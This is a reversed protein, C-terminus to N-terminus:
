GTKQKPHSSKPVGLKVMGIPTCSLGTSCVMSSEGWHADWYLWSEWIKLLAQAFQLLSSVSVELQLTYSAMIHYPTIM